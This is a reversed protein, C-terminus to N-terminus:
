PMNQFSDFIGFILDTENGVTGVFPNMCFSGTLTAFCFDSTFYLSLGFPGHFDLFVLGQM